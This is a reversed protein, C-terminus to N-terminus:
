NNILTVENGIFSQAFYINIGMDKAEVTAGYSFIQRLFMAGLQSGAYVDTLEGIYVRTTGNFNGNPEYYLRVQKPSTGEAKYSSGALQVPSANQLRITYENSGVGVATNSDRILEDLHLIAIGSENSNFEICVAGQGAVANTNDDVYFYSLSETRTARTIRTFSSLEQTFNYDGLSQKSLIDADVWKNPEGNDLDLQTARDSFSIIGSEQYQNERTVIIDNGTPNIAYISFSVRENPQLTISPTRVNGTDRFQSAEGINTNDSVTLTQAFQSVNVVSGSVGTQNRFDFGFSSAASSRYIYYNLAFSNNNGSLRPRYSIACAVKSSGISIVDTGNIEQPSVSLEDVIMFHRDLESVYVARGLSLAALSGSATLTEYSDIHYVNKNIEQDQAAQSNNVITNVESITVGGSGSGAPSNGTNNYLWTSLSTENFIQGEQDTLTSIKYGKHRGIKNDYDVNYFYVLDGDIKFKIDKKPNQLLVVGQSGGTIIFHNGEISLERDDVVIQSQCLVSSLMLMIIVVLKKM